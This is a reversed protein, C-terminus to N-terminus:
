AAPGCIAGLVVVVYVVCTATFLLILYGLQQLSEAGYNAVVSALAGFTGIPALRMVWGVIRFVVDSLAQHRHDATGSSAGAM